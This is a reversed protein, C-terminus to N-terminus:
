VTIVVDSKMLISIITPMDSIREPQIKDALKYYNVCTGCAILDVGAKFLADVADM